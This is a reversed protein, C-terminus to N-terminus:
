SSNLRTSKRDGAGSRSTEVLHNIKFNVGVLNRLAAPTQDALGILLRARSIMVLKRGFVKKERDGFDLPWEEIFHHLTQIQIGLNNDVREFGFEILTIIEAASHFDRLRQPRKQR